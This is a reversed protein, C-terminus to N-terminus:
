ERQKLKKHPPRGFERLGTSLSQIASANLQGPFIPSVSGRSVQRRRHLAGLKENIAAQLQRELSETVKDRFHKPLWPPLTCASYRQDSGTFAIEEWKQEKCVVQFLTVCVLCCQKSTAVLYPFLNRADKRLPRLVGCYETSEDSSLFLSLLAAECHWTEASEPMKRPPKRFDTLFLELDGPASIFRKLCTALPEMAKDVQPITAKLLKVDLNQLKDCTSTFLLNEISCTHLTILRLWRLITIAEEDRAPFTEDTGIRLATFESSLIDGTAERMKGAGSHSRNDELTDAQNAGRKKATRSNKAKKLDMSLLWELHVGLLPSYHALYFLSRLSEALFQLLAFIEGHEAVPGSVKNELKSVLHLGLLTNDLCTTLMGHYAFRGEVTMYFGETKPLAPVGWVNSCDKSICDEYDNPKYTAVAPHSDQFVSWDAPNLEKRELPRGNKTFYCLM